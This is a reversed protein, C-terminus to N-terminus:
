AVISCIKWTTRGTRLQRELTRGLPLVSEMCHYKETLSYCVSASPREGNLAQWHPRGRSPARKKVVGHAVKRRKPLQTQSFFRLCWIARVEAKITFPHSVKKQVRLGLVPFHLWRRVHLFTCGDKRAHTTGWTKNDSHTPNTNKIRHM